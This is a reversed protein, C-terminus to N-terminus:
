IIGYKSLYVELNFLSVSVKENYAKYLSLGIIGNLSDDEIKSLYYFSEAFGNLSNLFDIHYDLLGIPVSIVLVSKAYSKYKKSTEVLKAMDSFDGIEVSKILIDIDGVEKNFNEVIKLIDSTYKDLSENTTPVSKIDKVTYIISSKAKVEDGMKSAIKRLTEDDIEDSQGLTAALAFVERALKDSSDIPGGESGSSKINLQSKKNEVISKNSSGGTYLVTPDLGWLKEEWDSIGNKNSDKEVLEKITQNGAVIPSDKKIFKEKFWSTQMLLIVVVITTAVAGKKIFQKSPLYNQM